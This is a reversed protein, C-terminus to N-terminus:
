HRQRKKNAGKARDAAAAGVVGIVAIGAGTVGAAVAIM